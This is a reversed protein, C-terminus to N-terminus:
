QDIKLIKNIEATVRAEDFEERIIMVRIGKNTWSKKDRLRQLGNRTAESFKVMAADAKTHDDDQNQKQQNVQFDVLAQNGVGEAAKEKPVIDSNAGSDDDKSDDIAFLGAMAYKRAYSSAMGTIQAADSKTKSEVERAFATVSISEEGHALTVTAKIYFRDGIHEVQDHLIITCGKLLPKVAKLIDACSRYKFGGFENNNDKPSKLEVQIIALKESLTKAEVENQKDM